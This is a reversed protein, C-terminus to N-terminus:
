SARPLPSPPVLPLDLRFESGRGEESELEVLGGHGEIIAKIIALGLGVGPIARETATSARYFRRFLSAQEEAPIGVGTDRVAVLARESVVDTPATPEALM